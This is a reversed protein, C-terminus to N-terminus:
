KAVVVVTGEVVDPSTVEVLGAASLGITVAVIHHPGTGPV